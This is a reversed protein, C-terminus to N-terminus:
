KVSEPAFMLFSVDDTEPNRANVVQFGVLCIIRVSIASLSKEILRWVSSMASTILRMRGINLLACM